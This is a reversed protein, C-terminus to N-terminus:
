QEGLTFTRNENHIRHSRTESEIKFTRSENPIVYVYRKTDYFIVDQIFRSNLTASLLGQQNAYIDSVFASDLHAIIGPNRTVDIASTATAVMADVVLEQIQDAEVQITFASTLNSSGVSDVRATATLEATPTLTANGGSLERLNATITATFELQADLKGLRVNVASIATSAQLSSTSAKLLGGAPAQTFQADLAADAYVLRVASVTQTTTAILDVAGVRSANASLEFGGASTMDVTADSVSQNVASLQTTSNLTAGSQKVIISDDGLDTIGHLLM